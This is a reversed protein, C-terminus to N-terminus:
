SGQSRALAQKMQLLKIFSTDRAQLQEEVSVGEYSCLGRGTKAGLDNRAVLRNITEPAKEGKDLDPLLNDLVRKWTDLGGYDATEVPGIFAWRFGPGDKIVRDIDPADAVGQEILAMAERLLAAQLRNAIFGPVERKLVVPSKGIRNLLNVTAQLASESTLEHKVVEVLPILPAPNIFHAIIYREPHVAHRILTSLPLTSTNSAIIVEPGCREELKAFLQRKLDPVEPIAELIMGSGLLSDDLDTTYQIRKCIQQKQEASLAKQQVYLNLNDNISAEARRLTDAALDYLKVPIGGAAVTQAIGHGMVGAGIVTVQELM